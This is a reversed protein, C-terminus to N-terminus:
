LDAWKVKKMIPKSADLIKTSMKIKCTEQYVFEYFKDFGPKDQFIIQGKMMQLGVSLNMIRNDRKLNQALMIIAVITLWSMPIKNGFCPIFVGSIMLHFWERNTQIIERELIDCNRFGDSLFLLLPTHHLQHMYHVMGMVHKEESSGYFGTLATCLDLGTEKLTQRISKPFLIGASIRKSDQRFFESVYWYRSVVGIKIGNAIWRPKGTVHGLTPEDFYADEIEDSFTNGM